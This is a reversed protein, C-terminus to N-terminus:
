PDSTLMVWCHFYFSVLQTIFSLSVSTAQNAFFFFFFWKNTLMNTNTTAPWILRNARNHGKLGLGEPSCRWWIGADASSPRAGPTRPFCSGSGPRAAPPAARPAQCRWRRSWSTKEGRCWRPSCASGCRGWRSRGKRASTPYCVFKNIKKAGASFSIYTLSHPLIQSVSSNLIVHIWLLANHWNQTEPILNLM